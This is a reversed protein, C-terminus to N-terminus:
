EGEDLDSAFDDRQTRLTRIPRPALRSEPDDVVALGRPEVAAACLPHLLELSIGDDLDLTSSFGPAETRMGNGSRMGAHMLQESLLVAHCVAPNAEDTRIAGVRDGDAQVRHLVRPEGGLPGPSGGPRSAGLGVTRPLRARRRLHAAM